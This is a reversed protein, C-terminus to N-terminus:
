LLNAVLKIAPDIFALKLTNLLISPSFIAVLIQLPEHVNHSLCHQDICILFRPIVGRSDKPM